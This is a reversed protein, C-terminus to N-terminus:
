PRYVRRIARACALNNWRIVGWATVLVALAVVPIQRLEVGLWLLMLGVWPILWGPLRYGWSEWRPSNAWAQAVKRVEADPHERDAKLLRVVERRDGRALAEM